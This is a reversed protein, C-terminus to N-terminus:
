HAAFIFSRRFLALCYILLLVDAHTHTYSLDLKAISDKSSSSNSDSGAAEDDSKAGVDSVSPFLKPDQVHHQAKPKHMSLVSLIVEPVEADGGASVGLDPEASPPECVVVEEVPAVKAMKVAGPAICSVGAGVM